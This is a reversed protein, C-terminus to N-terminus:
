GRVANAPCEPKKPRQHNHGKCESKRQQRPQSDDNSQKTEGEKRIGASNKGKKIHRQQNKQKQGTTVQHTTEPNGTPPTAVGKEKRTGSSNRSCNRGGWIFKQSKTLAPKRRINVTNPTKKRKLRIKKNGFGRCHKFAV